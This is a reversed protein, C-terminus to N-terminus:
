DRFLRHGAMELSDDVHTATTRLGSDDRLLVFTGNVRYSGHTAERRGTIGREYTGDQDLALRVTGDASTWVGALDAMATDEAVVAPPPVLEFREAADSDSGMALALLTAAGLVTTDVRPGRHLRM